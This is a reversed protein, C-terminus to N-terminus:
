LYIVLIAFGLILVIGNITVDVVASISAQVTQNSAIKGSVTWNWKGLPAPIVTEVVENVILTANVEIYPVTVTITYSASNDQGELLSYTKTLVIMPITPPPPLALPNPAVCSCLSLTSTFTSTTLTSAACTCIDIYEVQVMILM